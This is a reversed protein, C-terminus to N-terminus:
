LLQARRRHPHPVLSPPPAVPHGPGTLTPEELSPPGGPFLCASVFGGRHGEQFGLHACTVGGTEGLEVEWPEVEIVGLQRPVFGRCAAMSESDLGLRAFPCRPFQEHRRARRRARAAQRLAEDVDPAVDRPRM